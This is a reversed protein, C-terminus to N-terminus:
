NVRVLYLIVKAAINQHYLPWLQVLDPQGSIDWLNFNERKGMIRECNFGITKALVTKNLHSDTSLFNYMFHTKGTDALGFMLVNDNYLNSLNVLNKIKELRKSPFVGM